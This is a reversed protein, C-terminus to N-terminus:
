HVPDPLRAMRGHRAPDSPPILFARLGAQSRQARGLLPLILFLGQPRALAALAAALGARGWRGERAARLSEVACLLFLSEAYPAFLIFGVPSLVFSLTGERARRLEMDRRAMGELRLIAGLGALLSILTLAAMPSLGLRALPMALLPYLPYFQTTGDGSQYGQAVIRAYWEADWRAWPAILVRELWTLWPPTPPWAPVAQELPTLPRLVSVWAAELRTLILLLVWLAAM